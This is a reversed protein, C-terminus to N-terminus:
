GATGNQSPEPNLELVNAPRDAKKAREHLAAVENKLAEEGWCLVWGLINVTASLTGQGKRALFSGLETAPVDVADALASGARPKWYYGIALAVGVLSTRVVRVLSRQYAEVDYALPASAPPPSFQAEAKADSVADLVEAQEISDRLEAAPSRDVDPSRLLPEV